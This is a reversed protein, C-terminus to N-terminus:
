RLWENWWFIGVKTRCAQKAELYYSNYIAILDLTWEVGRGEVMIWYIEANVEVEEWERWKRFKKLLFFFPLSVFFRCHLGHKFVYFIAGMRNTTTIGMRLKDSCDLICCLLCKLNLTRQILGCIFQMANMQRENQFATKMYNGM